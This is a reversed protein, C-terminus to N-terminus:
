QRNGERIEITMGSANSSISTTEFLATTEPELFVQRWGSVDDPQGKDKLFVARAEVVLKQKTLNKLSAWVRLTGMGTELRASGINAVAVLSKVRDENILKVSPMPPAKITQCAAVLLALALVCVITRM